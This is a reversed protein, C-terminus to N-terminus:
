FQATSVDAVEGATMVCPSFAILELHIWICRYACNETGGTLGM